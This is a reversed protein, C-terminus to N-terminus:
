KYLNWKLNLDFLYGYEQKFWSDISEVRPEQEKEDRDRNYFISTEINENLVSINGKLILKLASEFSNYNENLIPLHHEPYGDFHCYVCLVLDNNLQIAINSRTSM